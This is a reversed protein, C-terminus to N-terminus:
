ECCKLTVLMIGFRFIFFLTAMLVWQVVITNCMYMLIEHLTFLNFTLYHLNLAVCEACVGCILVENIIKVPKGDGPSGATPAVESTFNACAM